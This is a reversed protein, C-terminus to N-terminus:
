EEVEKALIQESAVHHAKPLPPLESNYVFVGFHWLCFVSNFQNMASHRLRHKLFLFPSALSTYGLLELAKVTAMPPKILSANTSITRKKYSFDTTPLLPPKRPLYGGEQLSDALFLNSCLWACLSICFPRILILIISSPWRWVIFVLDERLSKKQFWKNRWLWHVPLVFIINAM